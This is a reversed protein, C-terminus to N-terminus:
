RNDYDHFFVQRGEHFLERQVLMLTIVSDIESYFFRNDLSTFDNTAVAEFITSYHTKDIRTTKVEELRTAIERVQYPAVKLSLKYDIYGALDGTVLKDILSARHEQLLNELQATVTGGAPDIKKFGMVTKVTKM